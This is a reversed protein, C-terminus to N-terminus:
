DRAGAGAFGQAPSERDAAPQSAPAACGSRAVAAVQDGGGAGRASLARSRGANRRKRALAGSGARATRCLRRARADQEANAERELGYDLSTDQARERGLREAFAERTGFEDASWHLRVESRHRSLAVYALHRDMGRTALVHAVDVTAGQSKHVTAAYGHDIDGYDGLDFVVARGAGAKGDADLRVTLRSGEIRELTGLTGNKVGLGRDNRLFYVREGEAFARAGQGTQMMHDPGLQGFKHLMERAGENLARVNDRTHTLMIRSRHRDLRQDLGWDLIIAEQADTLTDHASVLRAAEYRELAAAIRGSALEKTAERQWADHQRQPEVIEAAGVREAIARLAAGSEIAQLQRWDGTLVLKAGAAEVTEILRGLQRSGIMGAEDVVLVDNSSLQEKGQAWAYEWSALTRSEIGASNELGEAAIGSLAAGRVRYGQEEWVQRATSFLTSKGGGAVGCVIALDRARTVHHFARTQEDRLGAAIPAGRRKELDVGHTTRNNLTTAAAIMRREIAVMERTSFRERGRGDKGVLVREPSAEVRALVASFQDAGDTQRHIFKALEERTFTSQSRTLIALALDPEALLREGNRRAIARHEAAREADEGRVARRAGAPGIKNQPALDVGQDAYSRHDIRVDHGAEALRANAFTEWAERWNRLLARDNWARQKQGFGEGAIVSRMSLMVHAHPQADGNQDVGWHINLDAVMGQAVFQECVFDRALAIAEASSLERPLSLEIERALQADKRRELAEVENWLTSRDRWRGPAGEPLLIESHIVGAKSSYDYTRGIREDFIRAAARYAAAAVASRGASRQFVKASFHYIAM